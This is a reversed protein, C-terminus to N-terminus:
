TNMLISSIAKEMSLTFALYSSYAPVEMRNINKYATPQAKPHFQNFKISPQPELCAPPISDLGTAFNLIDKLSIRATGEEADELYDTWFSLCDNQQKLDLGTAFTITFLETLAKATLTEPGLCLVNWFASPYAQIKELVGMTKLGQKFSELPEQVRQIVHHSLMGKILMYKDSVSQVLHLSGTKQLYDFYQVIASKLQAIRQCSQITLIATAVNPDAVDEIVPQVHQPDHILCRFLTQSFFGPAPGGHVLALAVMRGAEYYLNNQLADSNLSINKHENGELLSSHRIENLLLGFYEAISGNPQKCVMRLKRGTFKVQLIGSPSFKSNQFCDISSKWLSDKQILMICTLHTNIQLRLEHLIDSVPRELSRIHRIVMKRKPTSLRPCKPSSHEMGFNLCERRDPPGLSPPRSRKGPTCEISKCEPCEWSQSFDQLSSCDRHTGSSGCCQCRIIEWKSDPSSYERGSPCVCKSADCHQYRVLLEQFANEELEWSADREPIHIGMRLMEEQFIEKNNCVTCRFFFLGASLAQYQLCNRHFWSTKCCPSCLIHYSPVQVVSELCITCPSCSDTQSSVIKQVPRHEWCYSRFSDTFQFICERGVGCPYHYSRKCRPFVCGISAGRNKCICCRLKRARNIEKKIDCVLFGYIGEDEEGRQWIGSSLLLCYYHLTLDHEPYNKKEGFKEACDDVCGCFMCPLNTTSQVSLRSMRVVFSM